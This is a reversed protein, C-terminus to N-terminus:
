ISALELRELREIAASREFRKLCQCEASVILVCRWQVARDLVRAIRRALRWKQWAVDPMDSVAAM